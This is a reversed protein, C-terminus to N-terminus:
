PQYITSAGNPFQAETVAGHDFLARFMACRYPEAQPDCKQDYDQMEPVSVLEDFRPQFVGSEFGNTVTIEPAPMENRHCSNCVTGAGMRIRDFPEAQTIPATMPFAMEAKISRLLSTPYEALEIRESGDGLTSVSLVLRTPGLFVFMRPNRRGHAPQLSFASSSGIVAIPRALRSLFCPITLPATGAAVLANAMTVADAITMPAASVGAPLAPCNPEDPVSDAGTDVEAGGELAGDSGRGADPSLTSSGCGAALAAFALVASAWRAGSRTPRSRQM